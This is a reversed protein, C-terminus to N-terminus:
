SKRGYLAWVRRKGVRLIVDDVDGYERKSHEAKAKSPYCAWLTYGAPAQRAAAREELALASLKAM